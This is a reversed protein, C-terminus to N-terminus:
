AHVIVVNNLDMKLFQIELNLKNMKTGTGVDIILEM